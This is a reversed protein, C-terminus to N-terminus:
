EEMMNHNSGSPKSTIFVSGGVLFAGSIYFVSVVGTWSGILGFFLPAILQSLRNAAIRLGLVEGTRSIPSHNYITTMSLPQGCGLGAGMFASLVILKWESDAAPILLFSIGAVIISVLLIHNRNFVETLKGLFYRVAVMTLGQFAIVLGITSDSVDLQNGFLPFYAIFIDRSYTVLVSSLLAKRLLPMKLLHFTSGVPQRKVRKWRKAFPISFALAIPVLGMFISTLFVSPYDFHEALYGGAIPGIVGGLSVTTTFMGFYHDRKEQPSANGLLNQLSIALFIQSSGVTVQSLYLAWMTPFCYPLAVGATLGILGAIIPLKDGARDAIRGAYVALFLPFVAFSATLVGIEFIGAGMEVAFLTVVPRTMNLIIQFGLVLVLVTRIIM